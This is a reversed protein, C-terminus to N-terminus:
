LIEKMFEELDDKSDHLITITPEGTVINELELSDLSDISDFSDPNTKDNKEEQLERLINKYKEIQSGVLYKKTTYKNTM